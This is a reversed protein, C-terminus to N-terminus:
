PTRRAGFAGIYGTTDFVGWAEQHAPGHFAGSLRDIGATGSSFAGAALPMDAWGPAGIAHGPVDIAVGVRPQSLDAITVTATGTLREFAGVPSAEAIGTWTASGAGAPNSGTADGAAHAQALSFPGAFATGEIEATLPGAGLALAAYGHEGWFGYSTVEPSVTVSLGPVTEVVEFSGRAAVTDFGGRAGLAAEIAELDVGGGSPNFLDAVTVATGDALVCRAGSCSVGEVYADAIREAGAALSYRGHLGSMRLTDARELLRGLRAVRPDDSGPLGPPGGTMSSGGGGGCAGLVLALALLAASLPLRPNTM